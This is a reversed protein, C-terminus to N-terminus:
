GNGCCYGRRRLYAETLVFLGDEMYFDVGQQLPRPPGDKDKDKKRKSM